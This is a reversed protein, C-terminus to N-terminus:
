SSTPVTRPRRALFRLRATRADWDYVVASGALVDQLARHERGIVIGVVVSILGAVLVVWWAKAIQAANTKDIRGSTMPNAV